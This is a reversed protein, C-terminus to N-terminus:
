LVFTHKLILLFLKEMNSTLKVYTILCTNSCEEDICM